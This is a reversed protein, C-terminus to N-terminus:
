WAGFWKGARWQRRRALWLLVRFVVWALPIAYFMSVMRRLSAGNQWWLPTIGGADVRYSFEYPDGMSDSYERLHFVDGERALYLRYLGGASESELPELCLADSDRRVEYLRKGFPEGDQWVCVRFFDNPPLPRPALFIGYVAVIGLLWVAMGLAMRAFRVRWPYKVRERSWRM